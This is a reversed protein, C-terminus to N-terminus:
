LWIFVTLVGNKLLHTRASPLALSLNLEIILVFGTPTSYIPMGIMGSMRKFSRGSENWLRAIISLNSKLGDGSEHM